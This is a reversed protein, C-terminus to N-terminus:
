KQSVFFLVLFRDALHTGWRLEAVIDGVVGVVLVVIIVVLVPIAVLLVFKGGANGVHSASQDERPLCSPRHDPDDAAALIGLLISPIQTLQRAKTKWRRPTHDKIM